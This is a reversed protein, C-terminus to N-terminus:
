IRELFEGELEGVLFCCRFFFALLGEKRFPEEVDDEAVLLLLFNLDEKDSAALQGASSRALDREGCGLVSAPM